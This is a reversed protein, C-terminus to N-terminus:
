KGDKRAQSLPINYPKGDLKIPYGNFVDLQRGVGSMSDLFHASM